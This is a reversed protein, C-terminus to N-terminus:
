IMEEPWYSDIDYIQEAHTDAMKLPPFESQISKCREINISATGIIEQLSPRQQPSFNLCTVILRSLEPLDRRLTPIPTMLTQGEGGLGQFVYCGLFTYFVTAGLAWVPDYGEPAIFRKDTSGSWESLKFSNGDIFIHEPIVPTTSFESLQTAIDRLIIWATIEDIEGAIPNIDREPFNKMKKSSKGDSKFAVNGEATITYKKGKHIIM